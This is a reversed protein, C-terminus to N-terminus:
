RSRFIGGDPPPEAGIGFPDAGHADLEHPGAYNPDDIFITDLGNCRRMDRVLQRATSTLIPSSPALARQETVWSIWVLSQCAIVTQPRPPDSCHLLLMGAAAGASFVTAVLPVVRM